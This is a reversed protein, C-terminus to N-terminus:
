RGGRPGDDPGDGDLGPFRRIHESAEAASRYTPLPLHIPDPMSRLAIMHKCGGPPRHFVSSPCDCAAGHDLDIDHPVNGEATGRSFRWGLVQGAADLHPEVLYNDGVQGRQRM